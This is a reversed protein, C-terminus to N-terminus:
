VFLICYDINNLQSYCLFYLFSMIVKVFHEILMYGYLWIVTTYNNFLTARVADHSAVTM